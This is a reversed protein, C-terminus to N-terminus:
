SANAKTFWLHGLSFAAIGGLLTHVRTGPLCDLNSCSKSLVAVSQNTSSLSLLLGLERLCMETSVFIFIGAQMVRIVVLSALVSYIGELTMWFCVVPRFLIWVSSM